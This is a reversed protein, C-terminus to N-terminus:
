PSAALQPEWDYLLTRSEKEAARQRSTLWYLRSGDATWDAAGGRRGWKEDNM